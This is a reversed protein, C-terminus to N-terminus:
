PTRTVERQAPTEISGDDRRIAEPRVLLVPVGLRRVAREAVSGLLARALGTRGHTAMAVLDPREAECWAVIERAPDGFATAISVRWGDTELRKVDQSVDDRLRARASEWEQSAWVHAEDDMDRVEFERIRAEGDIMVQATAPAEGTAVPEEGVRMLTLHARAPDFLARVAPIAARSMESGDLPILIRLDSM